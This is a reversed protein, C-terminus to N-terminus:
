LLGNMDFLGSCNAAACRVDYWVIERMARNVLKANVYFASKDLQKLNDLNRLVM